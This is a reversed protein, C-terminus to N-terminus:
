MKQVLERIVRRALGAAAPSIDVLRTDLPYSPDRGSERRSNEAFFVTETNGVRIIRCRIGIRTQNLGGEIFSFIEGALIFDCSQGEAAKLAAALRESEGFALDNWALDSREIRRFKKEQLLSEHFIDGVLMGSGPAHVPERFGLVLIAAEKFNLDKAKTFLHLDPNREMAACGWFFMATLVAFVLKKPMYPNYNM